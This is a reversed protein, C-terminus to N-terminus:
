HGRAFGAHGAPTQRMVEYHTAEAIEQMAALMKPTAGPANVTIHGRGAGGRAHQFAGIEAPTVGIQALPGGGVVYRRLDAAFSNMGEATARTNREIKAQVPDPEMGPEFSSGNDKPIDAKGVPAGAGVKLGKMAAAAQRVLWTSGAAIAMAAVISQFMGAYDKMAFRIAALALELFTLSEAVIVVFRIFNGALRKLFKDFGEAKELNDLAANLKEMAPLVYRAVAEGIHILLRQWSNELNTLKANTTGAMKELINGYKQEIVAKLADLTQKASGVLRGEPDFKLGAKALMGKSLGLESLQRLEPM